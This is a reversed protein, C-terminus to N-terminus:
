GLQGRPGTSTSLRHSRLPGSLPSPRGLWPASSVTASASACASWGGGMAATAWAGAQLAHDLRTQDPLTGKGDVFRTKFLDEHNEPRDQRTPDWRNRSFITLKESMRKLTASDYELVATGGTLREVLFGGYEAHSEVLEGGTVKALLRPAVIGGALAAAGAGVSAVFARRGIGQGTM